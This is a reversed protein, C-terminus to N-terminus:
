FDRSLKTPKELKLLLGHKELRDERLLGIKEGKERGKYLRYIISKGIRELDM